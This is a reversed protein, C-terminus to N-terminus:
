NANKKEKALPATAPVLKHKAILADVKKNFEDSQSIKQAWEVGAVGAERSILPMKSRWENWFPTEFMEILKSVVERSMHKEYVKAVDDILRDMDEQEVLANFDDWFAQPIKPYSFAITSGFTDLLNNKMLLMQDYLGSVRLLKKIDERKDGKTEAWAPFVAFSFLFFVSVILCGTRIDIQLKM